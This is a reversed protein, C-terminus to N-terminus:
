NRNEYKINFTFDIELKWHLFLISVSMYSTICSKDLWKIYCKHEKECYTMVTPILYWGYIDDTILRIILNKFLKRTSIIM